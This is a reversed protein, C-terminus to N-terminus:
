VTLKVCFTGSSIVHWSKKFCADSQMANHVLWQSIHSPAINQAQPVETRVVSQVSM